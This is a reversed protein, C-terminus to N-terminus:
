TNRMAHGITKAVNIVNEDNKAADPSGMDSYIIKDMLECGLGNVFINELKQAVLEAADRGGGCTIVIVVKKGKPFFMKGNPGFFSYMRDLLLKFQASCDGFYIPTSIILVDSDSMKDMIDSIEDNQVCKGDKKCGMCAKCGHIFRLDDLHTLTIENTSLGMAGDIIADVIVDSNAGRRPSSVIALIKAM